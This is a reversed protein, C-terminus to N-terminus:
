ITLGGHWAVLACRPDRVLNAHKRSTTLTDVVFELDETVAIGVAAAQPAGDGHLSAEVVIKNERLFRIVEDRTM